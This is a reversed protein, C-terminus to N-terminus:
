ASTDVTSGPAAAAGNEKAAAEPAAAGGKAIGVRAPRLLREHLRYGVQVVQIVSGQPAGPVPAEFMAEHNHPDFAEGEPNLIEIGHKEFAQRLERQTMEVGTMLTKLADDGDVAEAPVAALARELNDAVGLVDRALPVAAYKRAEALERQSRKALNDFEAMARVVRDYNEKLRAVEAELAEITAAEPSLAAAEEPAADPEAEPAAEPAAKADLATEVDVDPTTIKQNEENEAM